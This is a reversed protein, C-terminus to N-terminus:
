TLLILDTGAATGCHSPIAEGSPPTSPPLSLCAAPLHPFLSHQPWPFTWSLQGKRFLFETNSKKASYHFTSTFPPLFNSTTHLFMVAAPFHQNFPESSCWAPFHLFMGLRPQLPILAPPGRQVWKWAAASPHSSFPRALAIEAYALTPISSAADQANCLHWPFAVLLTPRRPYATWPHAASYQQTRVTPANGDWFGALAPLATSHQLEKWPQPM